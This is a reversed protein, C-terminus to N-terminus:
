TLKIRRSSRMLILTSATLTARRLRTAKDHDQHVAADDNSSSRRQLRAAIPSASSARLNRRRIKTM